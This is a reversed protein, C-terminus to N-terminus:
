SLKLMRRLSDEMSKIDSPPAIQAPSGPFEAVKNTTSSPYATPTSRDQTPSYSSSAYHYQPVLSSHQYSANRGVDTSGNQPQSQQYQAYHNQQPTMQQGSASPGALTRVPTRAAQFLPSLNRNGYHLDNQTQQNQHQQPTSLTNEVPYIPPRDSSGVNLLDKLSKTYAARQAEGSDGQKLTSQSVGTNDSKLRRPPQPTLRNSRMTVPSDVEDIEMPFMQKGRDPTGSRSPTSIVNLTTNSQRKAREERDAKFFLDLPSQPVDRATPVHLGNDSGSSSGPRDAEQEMKAQLGAEQGIGPVSKSFFKPVPLSSPAPSAHFTPGAYAAKSPTALHAPNHAAISAPRPRQQQGSENQRSVSIALSAARDGQQKQRPQKRSKPTVDSPINSDSVTDTNQQPMTHTYPTPKNHHHKRRNPHPSDLVVSNSQMSNSYPSRSAVASMTKSASIIDFNNRRSEDRGIEIHGNTFPCQILRDFHKIRHDPSPIYYLYLWLIFRSHRDLTSIELKRCCSTLGTSISALHPVFSSCQGVSSRASRVDDHQGVCHICPGLV